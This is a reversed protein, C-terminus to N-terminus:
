CPMGSYVKLVSMSSPSPGQKCDMEGCRLNIKPLLLRGAFHLLLRRGEGQIVFLM